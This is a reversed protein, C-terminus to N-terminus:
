RDRWMQAAARFMHVTDVLFVVLLTTLAAYLVVRIAIELGGSVVSKDCAYLLAAAPFAAYALTAIAKLALYSAVICCGVFQSLHRHANKEVVGQLLQSIPAVRNVSPLRLLDFLERPDIGEYNEGSEKMESLLEQARSNARLQQSHSVAFAIALISLVVCATPYFKQESVSGLELPLQITRVDGATSPEVVLVILSLAALAIWFRNAVRAQLSVANAILEVRDRLHSQKASSQM